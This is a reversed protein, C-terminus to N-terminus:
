PAWSEPRGSWYWLYESFGVSLFDIDRGPFTTRYRQMSQQSHLPSLVQIKTSRGIGRQFLEVADRDYEPMSYGVFCVTAASCLLRMAKEWIGALATRQKARRPPVVSSELKMQKCLPCLWVGAFHMLTDPGGVVIYDCTACYLWNFSGHLKLIPIIRATDCGPHALSKSPLSPYVPTEHGLATGLDCSHKAELYYSFPHTDYQKCLAQEVLLDHNFSIIAGRSGSGSLVEFLSPLGEHLYMPSSTGTHISDAVYITRYYYELLARYEDTDASFLTEMLEELDQGKKRWHVADNLLRTLGNAWTDLMTPHQYLYGFLRAALTPSLLEYYLPLGADRSAGAGLVYVMLTDEASPPASASYVPENKAEDPAMWMLVLM